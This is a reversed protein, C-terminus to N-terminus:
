SSKEIGTRCQGLKEEILENNDLPIRRGVESRTYGRRQLLDRVSRLDPRGWAIYPEAVSLLRRVEPTVRVFVGQNLKRLKLLRMVAGVREHVDKLSSISLCFFHLERICGLLFNSFNSFDHTIEICELPIEQHKM